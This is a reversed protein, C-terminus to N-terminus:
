HRFHSIIHTPESHEFLIRRVSLLLTINIYVIAYAIYTNFTFLYVFVNKSWNKTQREYQKIIIRTEWLFFHFKQLNLLFLFSFLCRTRQPHICYVLISQLWEGPLVSQFFVAPRICLAYENWWNCYTSSSKRTVHKIISVRLTIDALYPFQNIDIFSIFLNVDMNKLEPGRPWFDTRIVKKMLKNFYLMYVCIKTTTCLCHAKVSRISTVQTNQCFWQSYM